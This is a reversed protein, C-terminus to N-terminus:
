DHLEMRITSTYNINPMRLMQRSADNNQSGIPLDQTSNIEHSRQCLKTRASRRESQTIPVIFGFHLDHRHSQLEGGMDFIGHSLGICEMEQRNLVIPASESQAIERRPRRRM